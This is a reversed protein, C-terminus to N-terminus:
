GIGPNAAKIPYGRTFCLLTTLASIIAQTLAKGQFNWSTEEGAIEKQRASEYNARARGNSAELPTLVCEINCFIPICRQVLQLIINACKCSVLTDIM